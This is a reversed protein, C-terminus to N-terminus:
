VERVSKIYAAAARRIEAACDARAQAFPPRFWPFAGIVDHTVLV